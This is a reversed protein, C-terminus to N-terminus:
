PSIIPAPSLFSFPKCEPVSLHSFWAPWAALRGLSIKHGCRDGGREWVAEAKEGLLALLGTLRLKTTHPPQTVVPSFSGMLNSYSGVSSLRLGLCEGAQTQLKRCLAPSWPAGTPNQRHDLSPMRHGVVWPFPRQSWSRGLDRTRLWHTAVKRQKESTTSEGSSVQNANEM